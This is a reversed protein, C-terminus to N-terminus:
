AVGRRRRLQGASKAVSNSTRYEPSAREWFERLAAGVKQGHQRRGEADIRSWRDKQAQSIHIRRMIEVDETKACGM